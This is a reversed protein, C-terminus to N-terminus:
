ADASVKEFMVPQFWDGPVYEGCAQGSSWVMGITSDPHIEVLPGRLLKRMRGVPAMVAFLFGFGYREVKNPIAILCPSPTGNFAMRRAVTMVKDSDLAVMLGMEPRWGTSRLYRRFKPDDQRHAFEFAAALVESRVDRVVTM